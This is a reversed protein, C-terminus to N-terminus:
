REHLEDRAWAVQGATGLDFGEALLALQAAKASAYKEHQEVTEMLVRTMLGSLSTDQEVALIKAKRLIEKPLSLTVNQKEM